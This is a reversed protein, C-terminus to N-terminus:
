ACQISSNEMLLLRNKKQHPMKQRKHHPSLYGKQKYKPQFLLMM